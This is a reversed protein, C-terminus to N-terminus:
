ASLNTKSNESDPFKNSIVVKINTQLLLFCLFCLHILGVNRSIEVNLDIEFKVILFLNEYENLM